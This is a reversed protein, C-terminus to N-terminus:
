VCGHSANRRGFHATNWPASHLFEGSNTIRLAHRATLSYDEEAGIMENTMKKNTEKAMILKVGSRTEWGRKGGSVPITKVLKGNRYVKAVDRALDVKTILSRGVTFSTSVSKQGYIGNGAKVGNLDANVKVKTGPKWYKAPRFRVQTDSLWNWTGTQAPSSTVQLHKQFEKKDKVPVDFNLVVPMGIGVTSNAFPQISPYTQEDLTLRHTSFSSTTTSSQGVVNKGSMSITYTGAPELREAATWTAKDKSLGGALTGKTTSGDRETYRYDVKVKTLKGAKATVKVLTDVTVQTAKDAINATLAVPAPPPPTPSPSDVSAGSTSGTGSPQPDTGTLPEQDSGCATVGLLALAAALAGLARVGSTRM